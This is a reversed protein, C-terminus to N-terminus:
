GENLNYRYIAYFAFDQYATFDYDWSLAITSGTAGTQKLDSIVGILSQTTAGVSETFSGTKNGSKPRVKFYYTTNSTLGSVVCVNETDAQVTKHLVFEIDPKNSIFIEYATDNFNTNNWYVEITSSDTSVAAIDEVYSDYELEFGGDFEVYVPVETVNMYFKGGTTPITRKDGNFGRIGEPHYQIYDCVADHQRVSLVSNYKAFWEEKGTADISVYEFQNAGLLTGTRQTRQACM